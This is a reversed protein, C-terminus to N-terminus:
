QHNTSSYAIPVRFAQKRPYLVVPAVRQGLNPKSNGKDAGLRKIATGKRAKIPHSILKGVVERDISSSSM